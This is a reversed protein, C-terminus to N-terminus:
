YNERSATIPSIWDLKDEGTENYDDRLADAKLAQYLQLMLNYKELDHTVPMCINTALKAVLAEIFKGTAKNLNANNHVYEIMLDTDENCVIYDTNDAPFYRVSWDIKKDEKKRNEKTFVNVILVCNSPIAYVYKQEESYEPKEVRVLAEEVTAHKWAGESLMVKLSLDYYTKCWLAEQTTDNVSNIANGGILGLAKNCITTQTETM